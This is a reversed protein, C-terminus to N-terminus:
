DIPPGPPLIKPSLTHPTTCSRGRPHPAGPPTNQAPDSCLKVYNMNHTTRLDQLDNIENRNSTLAYSFACFRTNRRTRCGHVLRMVSGTKARARSATAQTEDRMKHSLLPRRGYSYFRAGGTLLALLSSQASGPLSRATGTCVESAFMSLRRHSQMTRCETTGTLFGHM